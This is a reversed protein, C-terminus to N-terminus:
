PAREITVQLAYRTPLMGTQNIWITLPGPGLQASPIGDLLNRKLDEPGFHGYGLMRTTDIGADFVGNRQMAYFSIKDDSEYLVFEVSRLRFGAPVELSVFDADGRVIDGYVLLTHELSGVASPRTPDNSLEHAGGGTMGLDLDIPESANGAADQQRVLLSTLVNGTAIIAKGSGRIWSQGQDLSYEWISSQELNQLSLVTTIDGASPVAVPAQPATTDLTCTVMVIESTNGYDDRARVWITKPGDGLVEFGEGEGRTWTKGMDLSYEWGIDDASSVSWIGTKTIGDTISFGTDNFSLKPPELVVAGTPPSMSLDSGARAATEGAAGGCGLLQGTLLMMICLMSQASHQNMRVEPHQSNSALFVDLTSSSHSSDIFQESM